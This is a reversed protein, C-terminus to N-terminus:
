VVYQKKLEKRKEELLRLLEKNKAKEKALETELFEIHRLLSNITRNNQSPIATLETTITPIDIRPLEVMKRIRALSEELTKVHAQYQLMTQSVLPAQLARMVAQQQQQIVSNIANTFTNMTQLSQALSTLPKVATEAVKAVQMSIAKQAKMAESLSTQINSLSILISEPKKEKPKEKKESM